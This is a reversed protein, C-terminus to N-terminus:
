STKVDANASPRESRSSDGYHILAQIHQFYSLCTCLSLHVCVSVCVYM